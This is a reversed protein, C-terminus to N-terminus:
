GNQFPAPAAESGRKMAVIKRLDRSLGVHAILTVIWIVGYLGVSFLSCLAVFISPDGYRSAAIMACM